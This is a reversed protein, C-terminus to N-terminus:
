VIKNTKNIYIKNYIINIDIHSEFMIINVIDDFKEKFWSVFDFLM